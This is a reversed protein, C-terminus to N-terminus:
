RGAPWCAPRPIASLSRAGSSGCRPSAGRARRRDKIGLAKNHPITDSFWKQFLALRQERDALPDPSPDNM